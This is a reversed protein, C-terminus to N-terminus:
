EHLRPSGTRYYEPMDPISDGNVDPQNQLYWVLARWEKVEQIGPTGPDGDIVAEDISKLPQGNENKLTVKVLGHSLKKIIGVFQLLYVSASLSYLKTNHKSWDVPTFGKLSDGTEISTIKRLLGKHPDYTARLGGFYIYNDKNGAPAMYLIEMIGKLEKGTVYVRALPYGPVSDKGSGLPAVRYIDAVSQKGTKGPLINDRVMGAAFLSVDVGRPTNTNLYSYIADSILPGLNSNELLTDENCVLPFATETVISTYKLNLSNLFAKSILNEQDNIKKQVQADGAIADNVPIVRSDSHVVMGNKIELDLRGLGTGYAGTQVVPTGNIVLNDNILTHTHGSIIVDIQPVKEALKVDEGAWHGEADRSVGSHSLCIVLDVKEKEKLLKAYKRATRVPNEFFAPRVLPADHIANYGLIGFIGIKLGSREIIRYRKITGNSFLAELADDGPDKKSFALNSAVLLPSSNGESSRILIKALAEPGFDFEHNGLTVMDYGMQKMLKLQFGTSEELSAFFTGMLFDGADLVLLNNGEKEKEERILAAIRAFGGVTQDDNVTLPSYESEPSFGNLHSHLDNTHLIVLRATDPQAGATVSFCVLLATLLLIKNKLSINKLHLYL